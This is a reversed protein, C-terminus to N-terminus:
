RRQLTRLESLAPAAAPGFWVTCNVAVEGTLPTGNNHLVRLVTQTAQLETVVQAPIDPGGRPFSGSCDIGFIGDEFGTGPGFSFNGSSPDIFLGSLVETDQAEQANAPGPRQLAVAAAAALILVLAAVMVLPRHSRAMTQPM